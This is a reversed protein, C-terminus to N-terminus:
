HTDQTNAEGGEKAGGGSEGGGGGERCSPVVTQLLGAEGRAGDAGGGSPACARECLWICVILMDSWSFFLKNHIHLLCSTFLQSM